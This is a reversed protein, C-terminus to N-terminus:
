EMKRSTNRLSDVFSTFMAKDCGRGAIEIKQKDKFYFMVQIYMGTRAPFFIDFCFYTSGASTSITPATSAGAVAARIKALMDGHSLPKVGSWTLESNHICPSAYSAM